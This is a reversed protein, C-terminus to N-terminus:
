VQAIDSCREKSVNKKIIEMGYNKKMYQEFDRLYAKLLSQEKVGLRRLQILIERRSLMIVVYFAFGPGFNKFCSLDYKWVM